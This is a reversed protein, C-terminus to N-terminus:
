MQKQLTVTRKGKRILVSGDNYRLDGKCALYYDQGLILDYSLHMDFVHCHWRTKYNAWCVTVIVDGETTCTSCRDGVQLTTPEGMGSIGLQHAFRVSIFSATAGNDFWARSQRGNFQGPFTMFAFNSQSMHGLADCQVHLYYACVRQEFRGVDHRGPIHFKHGEFRETVVTWGTFITNDLMCSTHVM